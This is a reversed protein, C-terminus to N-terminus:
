SKPTPKTEAKKTPTHGIEKNVESVVRKPFLKLIADDDPLETAPAKPPKPPKKSPDSM